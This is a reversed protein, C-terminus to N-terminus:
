AGPLLAEAAETPIGVLGERILRRLLEEWGDHARFAVDAVSRAQELRGAGALSLATWFAVEPNDPQAECATLREALAGELDGELELQEARELRAYARHLDLLRRLEVLPQPHDDVRLDVLRDEWTRDSPRARVVLIGAAQRGRIDGGEAEAAELAVIMREALDGTAATFTDHM